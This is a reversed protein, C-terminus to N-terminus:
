RVLSTDLLDRTGFLASSFQVELARKAVLSGRFMEAYTQARLVNKAEEICHM